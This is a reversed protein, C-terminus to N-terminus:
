AFLICLCNQFHPNVKLNSKNSGIYTTDKQVIRSPNWVCFLNTDTRDYIQLTHFIAAIFQLSACFVRYVGLKRNRRYFNRIALEDCSCVDPRHGKAPPNSSCKLVYVLNICRWTAKVLAARSFDSCTNHLITLFKLLTITYISDIASHVTYWLSWNQSQKETM